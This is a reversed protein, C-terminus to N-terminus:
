ENGGDELLADVVLAATEMGDEEVIEQVLDRLTDDGRATLKRAAKLLLAQTEEDMDLTDDDM